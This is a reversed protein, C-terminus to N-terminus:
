SSPNEVDPEVEGAGAPPIRMLLEQVFGQGTLVPRVTVEGVAYAGGDERLLEARIRDGEELATDEAVALPAAWRTLVEEPVESRLMELHWRDVVSAPVVVDTDCGAWVAEGQYQGREIRGIVEGGEGGRRVVLEFPFANANASVRVDPRILLVRRAMFSSPSAVTRRRLPVVRFTEAPLGSAKVKYERGTWGTFVLYKQLARPALFSADPEGGAGAAGARGIAVTRDSDDALSRVVITGHLSAWLFFLGGALLVAVWTRRELLIQREFGEQFEEKREDKLLGSVFAIWTFLGGLGLLGGVVPFWDTYYLMWGSVGVGLAILLGLNLLVRKIVARSAQAQGPDDAPPVLVLPDQQTM